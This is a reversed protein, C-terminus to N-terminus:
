KKAAEELAHPVYDFAPLQITPHNLFGQVPHYNFFEGVYTRAIFGFWVLFLATYLLARYVRRGGKRLVLGPTLDATPSPEPMLNLVDFFHALRPHLQERQVWGRRLVKLVASRYVAAGLAHTILLGIVLAYSCWFYYSHLFALAEKDSLGAFWDTNGVGLPIIKLVEVILSLFVIASALLVYASLRARVLRWVFRVDFFARLDGTAAFHLQAMPVYFLAAILLLLGLIGTAPGVFALEYGKHFSNLWGFEWSFMMLLSGWGTWCWTGIICALGLLLNRKLSGFLVLPARWLLRLLPRENEPTAAFLERKM